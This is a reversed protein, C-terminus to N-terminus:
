STPCPYTTQLCSCVKHPRSTTAYQERSTPKPLTALYTRTAVPALMKIACVTTVPLAAASTSEESICMSAQSILPGIQQQARCSSSTIQTPVEHHAKRKNNDRAKKAQYSSPASTFLLGPSSANIAALTNNQIRNYELVVKTYINPDLALGRFSRKNTPNNV